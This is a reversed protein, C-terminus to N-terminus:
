QGQSPNRGIKKLYDSYGKDFILEIENKPRNEDYNKFYITLSILAFIVITIVLGTKLIQKLRQEPTAETKESNPGSRFLYQERMLRIRKLQVNSIYSVIADRDREEVFKFKLGTNYSTRSFQKSAAYNENAFAVVCVADIVQPEPECPLYIEIPVLTDNEFKHHLLMRIGGGSINAALPIVDDWSHDSTDNIAQDPQDLGEGTDDWLGEEGFEESPLEETDPAQRLREWPKKEQQKREKEATIRAERKEKWAVKLRVESQETSIFYKIPLFADIRYFERLESSVIEGILRLLVERHYGETVIIARCSYGEIENGARIDLITGVKLKVGAPLTDRSLQLSILDEDITHIIAWDHFTDGGPVPIGVNVKLGVPFHELYQDFDSM